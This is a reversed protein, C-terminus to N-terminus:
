DGGEDTSRSERLRDALAWGVTAGILMGMRAEEALMTRVAVLREEEDPVTAARLVGSEHSEDFWGGAGLADALITQLRPALSAVHREAEGLGGGEAISELAKAVEEESYAERAV